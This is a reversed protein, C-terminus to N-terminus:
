EMLSGSPLPVNLGVSFTLYIVVTLGVAIVPNWVKSRRGLLWMLGSLYLATAIAFGVYSMVVLTVVSGTMGLAVTGYAPKERAPERFADEPQPAPGDPVKGRLTNFILATCLVVLACAYIIPFRAPGVDTALMTDPFDFSAVIAAIAIAMVFGAALLNPLRGSPRAAEVGRVPANSM